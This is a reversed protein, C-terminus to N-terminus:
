IVLGLVYITCLQHSELVGLLLMAVKSSHVTSMRCDQSQKMCMSSFLARSRM